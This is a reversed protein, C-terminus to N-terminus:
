FHGKLSDFGRLRTLFGVMDTLHVALFGAIGCAARVGAAGESKAATRGRGGHSGFAAAVGIQM